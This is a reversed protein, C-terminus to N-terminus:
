SDRIETKKKGMQMLGKKVWKKFETRVQRRPSPDQTMIGERPQM